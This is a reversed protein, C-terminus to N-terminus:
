RIRALGNFKAGDMLSYLTAGKDLHHSNLLTLLQLGCRSFAGDNDNM